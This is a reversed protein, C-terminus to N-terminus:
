FKVEAIGYTPRFDGFGGYKAGHEILGVLTREEIISDDFELGVDFSWKHFIPMAKAVKVQQQKLLMVTQFKGNQSLDELSKVLNEGDYRLRLKPQTPFVASRIDSKKIKARTWSNALVSSVVWTSPVYVGLEQDFYVKSEIDLRRLELLDEDLKKRKSTIASRERAYRNFPDVTQPNNMLLPLLGQVTYTISKM